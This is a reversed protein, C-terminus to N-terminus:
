LFSLEILDASDDIFEAWSRKKIGLDQGIFLLLRKDVSPQFPFQTALREM